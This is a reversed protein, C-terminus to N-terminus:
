RSAKGRRYAELVHENHPSDSMTLLDKIAEPVEPEPALFMRRQWEAFPDAESHIGRCAILRDATERDPVIPNEALWRIAAELGVKSIVPDCRMQQADLAAKLMGEPIVYRKEM